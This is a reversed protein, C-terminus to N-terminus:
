TEAMAAVISARTAGRAPLVAALVATVSTLLAIGIFWHWPLVVSPRLTALATRTLVTGYILGFGLGVLTGVVALLLAEVLLTSRLQGRTLGLARLTASERTREVVSLAVTNAIGFLSIVVTIVLLGAVLALLGNVLSEQDSNLDAVSGVSVLPYAETLDDLAARAITPSVDPAAIALVAVDGVDGALAALDSWTVLLDLYGIGPALTPASGVIRMSASSQDGAVSLTTGVAVDALERSVIATGSRFDALSGETLPPTVLTGLGGPDIAGIRVRTGDVTATAVRIQAVAGLEPRARVAPAYGPPLTTEDTDYRVGTVVFDVPFQEALQRSATASVSSMVVSFASMLGVGIMLAGATVAVRGPNLRANATALRAPIGISRIPPLTIRQEAVKALAAGVVTTLPGVFVPSAILVGLFAVTGGLVVLIAGLEPGPDRYGVVTIGVGVAAVFGALASRAVSRRTRRLDASHERLVALPSTRTARVTPVFASVVTVAVGLVTGILITMPSLVASRVPVGADFATNLLAVMGQAVGVGLAVGAVGGVLGIIASELLAARFLQGRTAGVCRLLATQRIRLASLVAFTNYIVFAAVVLSVAGFLLLLIRFADNWGAAIATLEDARQHATVVRRGDGVAASVAVALDAADVGAQGQVVLEDYTEVGTLSAIASAPLGVVSQGSYQRSLGFDILGVLPYTHQGGDVDVVTITDGVAYGLREATDTDLLAEGTAPAEGVLDYPRLSAGSDTSITVGVFGFNTVPRGQPDLLALQEAMRGEARAVEPLRRVRELDAATLPASDPEVVVDVNKLIRTFAEAHAARSTDAFIFTAAVFAVGLVVAMTVALLRRVHARLDSLVTGLM